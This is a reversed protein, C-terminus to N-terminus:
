HTMVGCFFRAASETEFMVEYGPRLSTTELYPSLGPDIEGNDVGFVNPNAAILEELPFPLDSLTPPKAGRRNTGDNFRTSFSTHISTEPEGAAFTGPEITWTGDSNKHIGSSNELHGKFVNYFYSQMLTDTDFGPRNIEESPRTYIDPFVLPLTLAALPIRMLLETNMGNHYLDELGFGRSRLTALSIAYEVEVSVDTEWPTDNAETNRIQTLAERAGILAASAKFVYTRSLTDGSDNHLPNLVYLRVSEGPDFSPAGNYKATVDLWDGGIDQWKKWLAVATATMHRMRSKRQDESMYYAGTEVDEYDGFRGVTVQIGDVTITEDSPDDMGKDFFVREGSSRATKPMHQHSGMEGSAAMIHNTDATEILGIAVVVAAPVGTVEELYTAYHLEEDTYVRRVASADAYSMAYSVTRLKKELRKRYGWGKRALSAAVTTKLGPTKLWRNNEDIRKSASAWAEQMRERESETKMESPILASEDFEEINCDINPAVSEPTPDTPLEGNVCDRIIDRSALIGLTLAALSVTLLVGPTRLAERRLEASDHPLQENM